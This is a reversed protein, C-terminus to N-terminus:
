AGVAQLRIETKLNLTEPYVSLSNALRGKFPGRVDERGELTWCDAIADYFEERISAWVGFIFPEDRGHIPIELCGRIFFWKQDIVCQDSAIMARTDREERTLNAYMDPFDAAFSLPVGIHIEGCKACQWTDSM